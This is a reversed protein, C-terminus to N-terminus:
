PRDIESLRTTPSLFISLRSYARVLPDDKFRSPQPVLPLGDAALRLQPANSTFTKNDSEKEPSEYYSNIDGDGDHSSISNPVM